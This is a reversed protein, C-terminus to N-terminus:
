QINKEIIDVVQGYAGASLVEACVAKIFSAEETSCDVEEPNSSIRASLDYAMYKKEPSLPTGGLMSLGFLKASIVRWVERPIPEGNIKEVIPTGFCDRFVKRFNIKM